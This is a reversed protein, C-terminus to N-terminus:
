HEDMSQIFDNKKIYTKLQTSNSFVYNEELIRIRLCFKNEMNEEIKASM